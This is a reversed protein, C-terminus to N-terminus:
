GPWRDEEKGLAVYSFRSDAIPGHRGQLLSPCAVNAKPCPPLFHSRLLPWKGQTGSLQVAKKLPTQPTGVQEAKMKCEGARPM